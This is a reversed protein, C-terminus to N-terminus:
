RVSWFIDARIYRRHEAGETNQRCHAPWLIQKYQNSGEMLKSKRTLVSEVAIAGESNKLGYKERNEYFSIHDKHHWDRTYAICNLNPNNTHNKILNNIPPVVQEGQKLALTGSIFDNQVDVIILASNEPINQM